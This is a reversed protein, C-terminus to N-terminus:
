SGMSQLMGPKGTWWWSWFSAWVWTWQTLSAMWGDWGRDDRRRRGEIKRLMLTKEFSDSSRMLHGFYQLKLTNPFNFLYDQKPKLSLAFGAESRAALRGPCQGSQPHSGATLALRSAGYIIKLNNLGQLPGPWGLGPKVVNWTKCLLVCLMLM